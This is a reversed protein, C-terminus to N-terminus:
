RQRFRSPLQQIWGRRSQANARPLVLSPRAEGADQVHIRRSWEPPDQCLQDAPVRRPLRRHVRHSGGVAAEGCSRLRSRGKHNQTNLCSMKLEPRGFFLCHTHHHHGLDSTCPGPPEFLLSVEFYFRSLLILGATGRCYVKVKHPHFYPHRPCLCCFSLHNLLLSVSQDWNKKPEPMTERVHLAAQPCGREAHDRRQL